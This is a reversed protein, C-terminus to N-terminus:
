YLLYPTITKEWQKNSCISTIKRLFQPFPMEFIAESNPMGLLKDLHNNGRPNVNTKYNDWKFYRPHIDKILKLLLLGFYVPKFTAIDKITFRIGNCKEGAFHYSTPLYVISETIIEGELLNNLQAVILNNQLWPAGMIQFAFDTGRGENLNTAEIFCLGPYLIMSDFSQIAPSTGVFASGWDPQFQNREWNTCKIIELHAKIMRSENFYLALEGLTCCHRIPIPWRGIFSSCSLDLDPGEVLEFNGSIPNPRDLVILKKNSGACVEMAYTLTWLYTYFRVGTDPVDFLILDINFIDEEGPALKTGYLSIIPLDTLEDIGDQMAEGDAGKVMLGHEPSFLKVLNFGADQLAKRTPVGQNTRAAENTILGIKQSKWSPASQILQDVGFHVFM